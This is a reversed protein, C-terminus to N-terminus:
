LSGKGLQKGLSVYAVLNEKKEIKDIRLFSGRQFLVEKEEKHISVDNLFIGKSGKPARIILTLGSERGGAFYKAVDKEITTSMFSKHRVLQNKFRDNLEEVSMNNVDMKFFFKPDPVGRYVIMDDSITKRDICGTIIDISEKFKEPNPFDPNYLSENIPDYDFQSYKELAQKEPEQLDFADLVSMLEYNYLSCEKFTRVTEAPESPKETIKKDVTKIKKKTIIGYGM